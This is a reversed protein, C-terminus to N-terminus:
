ASFDINQLSIMGDFKNDIQQVGSDEKYDIDSNDMLLSSDMPANLISGTGFRSTNINSDVNTVSKLLYNELQELKKSLKQEYIHCKKLKNLSLVLAKHLYVPDQSGRQALLSEIHQLDSDDNEEHKSTLFSPEAM